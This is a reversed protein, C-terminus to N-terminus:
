LHRGNPAEVLQEINSLNEFANCQNVLFRLIETPEVIKEEAVPVGWLKCIDWFTQLTFQCKLSDAETGFLFDDL